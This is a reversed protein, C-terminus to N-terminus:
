AADGMRFTTGAVEQNCSRRGGNAMMSSDSRQKYIMGGIDFSTEMVHMTSDASVDYLRRAAQRGCSASFCTSDDTGSAATPRAHGVSM